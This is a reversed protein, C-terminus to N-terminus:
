EKESEDMEEMIAESINDALDSALMAEEGLKEAAL